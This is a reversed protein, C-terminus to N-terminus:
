YSNCAIGFLIDFLVHENIVILISDNSNNALHLLDFRQTIYSTSRLTSSQPKVVRKTYMELKFVFLVKLPIVDRPTTTISTICLVGAYMCVATKM